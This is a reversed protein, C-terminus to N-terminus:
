AIEAAALPPGKLWLRYQFYFFPLLLLFAVISLLGGWRILAGV